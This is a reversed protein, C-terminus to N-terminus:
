RYKIGRSFSVVILFLICIGFVLLWRKAQRAEFVTYAVAVIGGFLWLLGAWDNPALAFPRYLHRFFYTNEIGIEKLAEIYFWFTGLGIVVIIGIIM